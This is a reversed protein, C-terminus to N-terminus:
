RKKGARRIRDGHYRNPNELRGPRMLHYQISLLELISAKGMPDLLWGSYANVNGGICVWWCGCGLLTDSRVSYYCCAHDLVTLAAFSSRVLINCVVRYLRFNHACIKPISSTMLCFNVWYPPREQELQRSAVREWNFLRSFM